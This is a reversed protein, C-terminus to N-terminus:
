KEKELFSCFRQSFARLYHKQSDELLIHTM